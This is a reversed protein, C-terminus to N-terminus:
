DPSTKILGDLLSLAGHALWDVAKDPLSREALTARTVPRSDARDKAFLDAVRAVFAPDFVFLNVENVASLSSPNANFTGITCWARDVLAFKSHLVDRQFEFLKFGRDLWAPHEARAARQIIPLDTEDPLIIQVDVGRAVADVLDKLMGAPPFFYANEIWVREQARRIAERYRAYVRANDDPTDAVLELDPYKRGTAYDRLREGGGDAERWRQEFLYAFDGVCPGEVRTCVDHWGEGGRREPLWEDGWAAGGTYAADDIVIVRSHDRPLFGGRGLTVAMPRYARVEVGRRRLEDFFPADTENSGLPDYLLRTRVGRAAARGMVDAFSRGLLDDRYIYTEIDIRREAREVDGFISGLMAEMGPLLTLAHQATVIPGIPRSVDAGAAAAAGAGADALPSVGPIPTSRGDDVPGHLRRDRFIM